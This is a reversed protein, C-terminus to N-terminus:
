RVAGILSDFLSNAIAIAKASAQYSNQFKILNAAEEDLNVGALNEKTQTAQGLLVKHAASNTNAAHTLTGVKSVLQSYVDSFTSKGGLLVSKKELGALGAAVTNDGPVPAGSAGTGAAAVLKPDTILATINKAAEYTPRVLFSDGPAVIGDTDITFGPGSITAPPPGSFTTVTKDSLRTLLFDSGDYSLTYDSAALQDITAPDYTATASGTNKPDPIVPIALAPNGLGFVDQGADGNLDFGTKHLDDFAVAFGAALLGFQQQAPDLVEDRFRLAGALAGGSIQSTINQGNVLIDKHTLDTPSGALSLQAAKGNLVLAQGNGIFVTQSGDAQNLVSVNVKEAIKAVLADRQDLLDNPMQGSTALSTEVMIKDNLEAINKAYGNIENVMAQMQNNNQGRFGELQAATTNLQQALADAESLMVQRVPISSPDDAVENVANFFSNFAPAIGTKENSIVADVQSSLTALTNSEAYVSTSTTLQATIFQDYSRTVNKADVGQGLYGAGSFSAPRTRLDVSQRSYGETNANTINHSTTELSRQAAMLGSLSTGLISSM